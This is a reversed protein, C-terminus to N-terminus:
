RSIIAMAACLASLGASFAGLRNFRLARKFARIFPDNPNIVGGWGVGPPPPNGLASLFWFVAALFGFGAAFWNFVQAM